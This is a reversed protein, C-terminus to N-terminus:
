YQNNGERKLKGVKLKREFMYIELVNPKFNGVADM